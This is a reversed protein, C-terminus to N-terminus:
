QRMKRGGPLRWGHYGSDSWVCAVDWCSVDDKRTASSWLNIFLKIVLSHFLSVDVCTSKCISDHKYLNIIVFLDFGLIGISIQKLFVDRKMMQWSGFITQYVRSRGKPAKRQWEPVYVDAVEGGVFLPRPVQWMLNCQLKQCCPKLFFWVDWHKFSIM